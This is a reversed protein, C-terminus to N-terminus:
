GQSIKDVQCADMQRLRSLVLHRPPLCWCHSCAVVLDDTSVRRLPRRFHGRPLLTRRFVLSGYLYGPVFVDSVSAKKAITVHSVALSHMGLYLRSTSVLVCWIVGISFWLAFPYQYRGFTFFIISFPVALGVMAHTSPMGYELAWKAELKVVPPMEPRPWRVIDKM